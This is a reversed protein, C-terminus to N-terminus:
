PPRLAAQPIVVELMAESDCWTIPRRWTVDAEQSGDMEVAIAVFGEVGRM